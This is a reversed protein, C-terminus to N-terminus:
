SDLISVGEYGRLIKLLEPMPKLMSAPVKRCLIGKRDVVPMDRLMWRYLYGCLTIKVLQPSVIGYITILPAEHGPGDILPILITDGVEQKAEGSAVITFGRVKLDYNEPMTAEFDNLWNYETSVRNILLWKYFAYSVAMKLKRSVMESPLWPYYLGYRAEDYSAILAGILYARVPSIKIIEYGDAIM